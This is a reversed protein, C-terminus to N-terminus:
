FIIGVLPLKKQEFWLVVSGAFTLKIKDEVIEVKDLVRGVCVATIMELVKDPSESENEAM